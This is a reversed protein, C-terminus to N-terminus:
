QCECLHVSETDSIIYELRFVFISFASSIFFIYLYIRLVKPTLLENRTFAFAELERNRYSSLLRGTTWFFVFFYVRHNYSKPSLMTSVSPFSEPNELNALEGHLIM